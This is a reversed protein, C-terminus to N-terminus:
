SVSLVRGNGPSYTHEMYRPHDDSATSDDYYEISYCVNDGGKEIPYLSSGLARVADKIHNALDDNANDFQCDVVQDLEADHWGWAEL